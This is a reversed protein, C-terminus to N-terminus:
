SSAGPGLAATIRARLIDAIEDTGLRATVEALFAYTLLARAEALPIGRAMLYFLANEDLEGVAAGHSCIVDDALIELEPKLDAEAKGSLLLAKALQRSDTGDAGPRVIVRGQYIARSADNAVAKFMQDSRCERTAHDVITTMDAHGAGALVSVGSLRVEASRGKFTLGTEHRAFGDGEALVFQNYHGGAHVEGSLTHVAFNGASSPAHRIHTLTANANLVLETAVNAFAAGEHTEILTAHANTELVILVRVHRAGEGENVFAVHIPTDARFNHSLRLAIAGQMGALAADAMPAHAPHVVRAFHAAAWEPLDGGSMEMIQIAPSPLASSLSPMYRGNAIVIRIADMSAFASNAMRKAARANDLQPAGSMESPLKQRLDTYKWDEIRRHPLGHVGARTAAADMLERIAQAAGM